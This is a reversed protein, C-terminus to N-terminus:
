SKVNTRGKSDKNGQLYHGLAIYVASVGLIERGQPNRVIYPDNALFRVRYLMGFLSFNQPIIEKM